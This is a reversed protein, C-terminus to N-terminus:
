LTCAQACRRVFASHGSLIPLQARLWLALFRGADPRRQRRAWRRARGAARRCAYHKWHWPLDPHDDLFFALAQQTDFLERRPSESLQGPVRRPRFALTAGVRAFSGRVAMRLALPYELSLALRQDCGGGARAAATRLLCQAPVFLNNRLARRLPRAVVEVPATSLDAALDLPTGDDYYAAEGWALAAGPHRILAARLARTADDALLDDADCLKVFPMSAAALARNTAHAPGRNAQEVIITDPWGATAEKLISLSDDTSGDDVFVYQRPFDGRQRALQRLVGPPWPAKNFVPVVFSVGGACAPPAAAPQSGNSM